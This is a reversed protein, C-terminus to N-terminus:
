IEEPGCDVESKEGDFDVEAVEDSSDVRHSYTAHGSQLGPGSRLLEQKDAYAELSAVEPATLHQHRRARRRNICDEPIPKRRRLLLEGYSKENFFDLFELEDDEHHVAEYEKDFNAAEEGHLDWGQPTKGRVLPEQFNIPSVPREFTQQTLKFALTPVATKLIANFQRAYQDNGRAPRVWSSLAAFRLASFKDPDRTLYDKLVEKAGLTELRREWGAEIKEWDPDGPQPGFQGSVETDRQNSSNFPIEFLTGEPRWPRWQLETDAKDLNQSRLHSDRKPNTERYFEGDGAETWANQVTRIPKHNAETQKKRPAITRTSHALAEQIALPKDSTRSWDIGSNTEIPDPDTEAKWFHYSPLEDDQMSIFFLNDPKRQSQPMQENENGLHVTELVIGDTLNLKATELDVMPEIDSARIIMGPELFDPIIRRRANLIM